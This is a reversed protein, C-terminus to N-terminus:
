HFDSGPVVLVVAAIALDADPEAGVGDPASLYEGGGASDTAAEPATGLSSGPRFGGPLLRGAQAFDLAQSTRAVMSASTQPLRICDPVLAAIGARM